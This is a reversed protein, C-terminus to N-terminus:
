HTESRGTTSHSSSASDTPARYVFRIGGLTNNTTLVKWAHDKTVRQDLALGLGTRASNSTFGRNPLLGGHLVQELGEGGPELRHFRDGQTM